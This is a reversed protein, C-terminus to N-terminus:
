FDPWVHRHVGYFYAFNMRLHFAYHILIQKRCHHKRRFTSFSDGCYFCDKANEDKMWYERGLLKRQAPEDSNKQVTFANLSKSINESKLKSVLAIPYKMADGPRPSTRSGDLSSAQSPSYSSLHSRVNHESLSPLNKQKNSARIIEESSESEEAAHANTLLNEGGTVNGIFADPAFTGIAAEDAAATIVEPEPSSREDDIDADNNNRTELTDEFNLGASTARDGIGKQSYDKLVPRINPSGLIHTHNPPLSVQDRLPLKSSEKVDSNRLYQAKSGLESTVAKSTNDNLQSFSSNDSDGTGINVGIIEQTKTSPKTLTSVLKDTLKADTILDDKPLNVHGNGDRLISPSPIRNSSTSPLTTSNLAITASSKSAKARTAGDPGRDDTSKDERNDDSLNFTGEKTGTVSLKLKSYLGSIGGHTLEAALNKSNDRSAPKPTPAYEDFSTLNEARSATTHIRDLALEAAETGLAPKSSGPSITYQNHRSDESARLAEGANENKYTTSSDM